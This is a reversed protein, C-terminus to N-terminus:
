HSYLIDNAGNERVIIDGRLNTGAIKGTAKNFALTTMAKDIEEAAGAVQAITELEDITKSEGNWKWVKITNDSSCTIFNDASVWKVDYIAKPHAADKECIKQDTEGDYIIIKKNGTVVLLVKADQSFDMSNIFTNGLDDLTKGSDVKFPTGAHVYAFQEGGEWVKVPANADAPADAAACLLLKAPGPMDGAKTGSKGQVCKVHGSNGGEGAAVVKCKGENAYQIWMIENTPGTLM